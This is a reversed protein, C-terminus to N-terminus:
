SDTDDLQEHPEHPQPERQKIEVCIELPKDTECARSKARLYNLAHEFPLHFCDKRTVNLSSCELDSHTARSYALRRDCHQGQITVEYIFKRADAMPGIYAVYVFVGRNLEVDLRLHFLHQNWMVLWNEHLEMNVRVVLKHRRGMRLMSLHRTQCHHPLDALPLPARDACLPAPCRYLRSPCNAEHASRRRLRKERGCGHRCPYRVLEAVAEMARNRVSSVTSRCIPCVSLRSRCRGCLLHGRGCQSLPPEMWELCVPCELLRLLKQNIEKLSTAESADDSSGDIKRKVKRGQQPAEGTPQENNEEQQANDNSATAEENATGEPEIEVIEEEMRVNNLAANVEMVDNEAPTEEVHPSFSREQESPEETVDVVHNANEEANDQEETPAVEDQRSSGGQENVRETSNRNSTAPLRRRAIRRLREGPSSGGEWGADNYIVRMSSLTSPRNHSSRHRNYQNLNNSLKKIAMIRQINSVPCNIDVRDSPVDYASSPRPPACPPLRPNNMISWFLERELRTQSRQVAAQPPASYSASRVADLDIEEVEEPPTASADQDQEPDQGQNDHNEEDDSSWPYESIGLARRISEKRNSM